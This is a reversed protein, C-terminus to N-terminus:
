YISYLPDEEKSPDIQRYEEAQEQDIITESIEPDESIHEIENEVKALHRQRVEELAQDFGVLADFPAFQKARQSRPMKPRPKSNMKERQLQEPCRIHFALNKLESLFKGILDSTGSLSRGRM